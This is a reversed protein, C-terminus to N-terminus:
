ITQSNVKKISGLDLNVSIEGVVIISRLILM